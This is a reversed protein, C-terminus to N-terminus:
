CKTRPGYGTINSVTSAGSMNLIFEAFHCNTGGRQNRSSPWLTQYPLTGGWPILSKPKLKPINLYRAFDGLSKKMNNNSHLNYGSCGIQKNKAYSEYLEILRNSEELLDRERQSSENGYSCTCTDLLMPADVCKGQLLIARRETKRIGDIVYDKKLVLLLDALEVNDIQKTYTNTFFAQPKADVWVSDASINPRTKWKIECAESLWDVLLQLTQKHHVGNLHWREKQSGSYQSEFEDWHKWNFPRNKTWFRTSKYKM